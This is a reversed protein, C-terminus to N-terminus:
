NGRLNIFHDIFITIIVLHILGLFSFTLLYELFPLEMISDVYADTIIVYDLTLLFMLAIAASIIFNPNTILRKM